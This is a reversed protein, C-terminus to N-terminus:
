QDIRGRVEEDMLSDGDSFKVKHMWLPMEKFFSDDMIIGKKLNSLNEDLVYGVTPVGNKENEKFKSIMKNKWTEYEFLFGDITYNLTDAISNLEEESDAAITSKKLFSIASLFFYGEIASVEKLIANMSDIL